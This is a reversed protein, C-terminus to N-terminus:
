VMRIVIANTDGQAQDDDHTEDMVLEGEEGDDDDIRTPVLVM